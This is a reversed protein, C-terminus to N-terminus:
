ISIICEHVCFLAIGRGRQGDPFPLCIHPDPLQTVADSVKWTWSVTSLILHEKRMEHPIVYGQLIVSMPGVWEM